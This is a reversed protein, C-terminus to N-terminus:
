ASVPSIEGHMTAAEDEEDQAAGEDSSSLLDVVDAAEQRVKVARVTTPQANEEACCPRQLQLDRM